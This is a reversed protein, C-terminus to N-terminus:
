STTPESGLLKRGGLKRAAGGKMLQCSKGSEKDRQAKAQDQRKSSRPQEKKQIVSYVKRNDDESHSLDVEGNEELDEKSEEEGAFEM